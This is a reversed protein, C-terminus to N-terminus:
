RDKDRMIAAATPIDSVNFSSLYPDMEYATTSNANSACFYM